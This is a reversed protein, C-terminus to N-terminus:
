DWKRTIPSHIVTHTMFSLNEPKMNYVRGDTGGSGLDYSGMATEAGTQGFTHIVSSCNTWLDSATGIQGCTHLQELKDVPTLSSWNTWLHSAARIQGFTHLQEMNDLSTFNSQNTCLHSNPQELKDLHIFSSWKTWLHLLQELKDWHTFSSWITWVQLYAQLFKPEHM